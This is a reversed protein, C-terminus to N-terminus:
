TQNGSPCVLLVSKKLYLPAIHPHASIQESHQRDVTRDLSTCGTSLPAIKEHAPTRYIQKEPGINFFEEDSLHPSLRGLSMTESM